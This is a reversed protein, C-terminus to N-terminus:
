QSGPLFDYEAGVDQVQPDVQEPQKQVRPPGRGSLEDARSKWIRHAEELKAIEDPRAGNAQLSGIAKALDNVRSHVKYPDNWDEAQQRRAEQAEVQRRRLGLETNARADASRARREAARERTEERGMREAERRDSRRDQYQSMALEHARQQFRNAADSQARQADLALQNRFQQDLKGQDGRASILHQLAGAGSEFIQRAIGEKQAEDLEAKERRRAM